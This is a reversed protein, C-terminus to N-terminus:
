KFQWLIVPESKLHGATAIAVVERSPHLAFRSCCECGRRAIERGSATEYVVVFSRPGDCEQASVAVYAGDPRLVADTLEYGPIQLSYVRDMSPFRLLQIGGKDRLKAECGSRAKESRISVVCLEEAADLSYDWLNLEPLIPTFAFDAGLRGLHGDHLAMLEGSQLFQLKYIRSDVQRYELVKLGQDLFYTPQQHIAVVVRSGDASLALDRPDGALVLQKPVGECDRTFRLVGTARQEDAYLGRLVYLTGQADCAIDRPTGQGSDRAWSFAWRRKLRLGIVNCCIVEEKDPDMEPKPARSGTFFLQRGDASFLLAESTAFVGECRTEKEYRRFVKPPNLRKASPKSWDKDALETEILLVLKEREKGRGFMGKRDLAAFAAMAAKALLAYGETEDLTHVVPELLANVQSLKGNLEDSYPSDEMSWRLDKRAEEFNEDYGDAVYRNAVQTLGEETLVHPYFYPTGEVGHLAFAYPTENPHLSRALQWCAPLDTEFAKRLKVPDIKLSRHEAM